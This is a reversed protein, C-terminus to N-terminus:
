RGDWFSLCVWASVECMVLVNDGGRIPDSTVCVPRLICDSNKGEAQGTSSGDFSWEPFDRPHPHPPPHVRHPWSPPPSPRHWLELRALGTM